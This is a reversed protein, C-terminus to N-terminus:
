NRNVERVVVRHVRVRHSGKRAPSQVILITNKEADLLCLNSYVRHYSGHIETAIAVPLEYSESKAAKLRLPKSVGGARIPLIENGMKAVIAHETANLMVVGGGTKPLAGPDFLVIQYGSDAGALLFVDLQKAGLPVDIQALPHEGIVDGLFLDLVPKGEYTYSQSFRRRKLQVHHVQGAGDVFYLGGVPVAGVVYVRFEGEVFSEDDPVQADVMAQLFGMCFIICYVFVKIDRM